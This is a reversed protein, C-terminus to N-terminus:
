LVDVFSGKTRLFWAYGAWAALLGVGTAIALPQWEPLQAEFLSRRAAELSPTLPNLWFWRRFAEPVQAAPYFIPSLFLMATTLLATGHALDRVFVGLSSLIWIGGLSLLAIPVVAVPVLLSSLPPPGVVICYAVFLLLLSAALRVAAGLLCVWALVESPFRLQKLHSRYADLLVPAENLCEAFLGYLTLGCLLVLAFPAEGEGPLVGWRAHFVVSFVFTYVALLLLPVALLWLWGLWTGRYRSDLRTWTLRLILRRNRLGSALFSLPM